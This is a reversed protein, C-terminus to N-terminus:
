NNKKIIYYFKKTVLIGNFGECNIKNEVVCSQHSLLLNNVFKDVRFHGDDLNYYPYSFLNYDYKKVEKNIRDINRGVFIVLSLVMLFVIKNKFFKTPIFKSIYISFPVFMILAVLIYGGYRLSPHNYFWEFFVIIIVLYM